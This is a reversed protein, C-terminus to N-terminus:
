QLLESTQHFQNALLRLAPKISDFSNLRLLNITISRFVSTNLLAHSNNGYANDEGLVVDKRIAQRRDLPQSYGVNKNQYTM